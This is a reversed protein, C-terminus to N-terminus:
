DAARRRSGVGVRAGPSVREGVGVPEAVLSDGVPPAGVSVIAEGGVGRGPSLGVGGDVSLGTGGDVVPAFPASPDRGVGVDTAGVADGEEAM